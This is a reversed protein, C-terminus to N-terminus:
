GNKKELWIKVYHSSLVGDTYHLKDNEYCVQHCLTYDEINKDPNQLIWQALYVEQNKNIYDSAHKAFEAYTAITTM